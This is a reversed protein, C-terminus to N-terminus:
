EDLIHLYSKMFDLEEGDFGVGIVEVEAGGGRLKGVVEESLLYELSYARGAEAGCVRVMFYSFPGTISSYPFGSGDGRLSGEDIDLDWCLRFHQANNNKNSRSIIRLNTIRCPDKYHPPLRPKICLKHIEAIRLPQVGLNPTSLRIGIERLRATGDSPEIDFAGSLQGRDTATLPYSHQGTTYRMYLHPTINYKSPPIRFSIHFTLPIAAPMNIHFIPLERSYTKTQSPTPPMTSSTQIVLHTSGDPRDELYQSLMNISSPISDDAVSSRYVHPLISQSSLQAYFKNTSHSHRFARSFDTYLFTESGASFRQASRTVPYGRNFPHQKSTNGCSCEINSPLVRGDWVAQEVIQGHGPFHEFSWAPGFIGVSLRTKALKNVALGTNTGGGEKEPYTIRPHNLSTKNQAWVDVGFFVNNSPIDSQHALLKSNQADAATWSYNTLISNCSKAFPLNAPTLANQYNIKNDKTLADYWILSGKPGIESKLQELFGQLVYSQWNERPFPKEINVLWGDFGYHKTIDALKKAMPFDLGGRAGENLNARQLLREIEKTQPEILLTGVSKVGNRHLTNTWSPPPVCVLKHSFYILTDVFQMYECSYMKEDVEVGQIHEYDHYNGAYDNCILVNAKKEGSQEPSHPRLLLPTNARQLPDSQAETWGELQDFTDFYTFGKLQDRERQRQREEPTPGTDPSPFLHRYGDRVPRLIDRWGLMSWGM